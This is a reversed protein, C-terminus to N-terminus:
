GQLIKFVIENGEISNGAEDTIKARAYYEGASWDPLSASSEWKVRTNGDSEIHTTSLWTQATLWTLGTWYKSDSQKKIYFKTSDANLGSGFSNKDQAYGSFKGNDFKSGASQYYGCESCPATTTRYTGGTLDESIDPLTKDVKIIFTKTTEVNELNDKSMYRLHGVEETIVIDTPFVPKTVLRLPESYVTSPSCDKALCYKPPQTTLCGSGGTNDQCSLALQVDNNTWTDSVYPINYPYVLKIANPVTNPPTDDFKYTRGKGTATLGANDAARFNLTIDKQPNLNDKKCYSETNTSATSSKYLTCSSTSRIWYGKGFVLLTNPTLSIPVKNNNVDTSDIELNELICTGLIESIKINSPVGIMYFRNAGLNVPQLEYSTGKIELTASEKMKIQYGKGPELVSLDSPIGAGYIFWEGNDYYWVSDLKDKVSSFISEIKADDPILPLSIFNNGSDLPIKNVTVYVANTSWTVGNDVTYECKTVSSVVDSATARIGVSGKYWYNNGSQYTTGLYVEAQSVSPPEFDMGIPIHITKENGTLDICSIYRKNNIGSLSGFSCTATTGSVICEKEMSSYSLGESSWRCAMGSVVFIKADTKKDDSNDWYPEDVDGAVSLLVPPITNVTFSIKFDDTNTNESNDSCKIYYNYLGGPLGTLQRSHSETNTTSFEETMSEYITEPTTSFKCTADENTTLSLAPNDIVVTGKPNGNSRVPPTRDVKFEVPSSSGPNGNTDKAAGCIWIHSTVTYPVGLTYSQYDGPCNKPDSTYTQIKYSNLNCEFNDTCGVNAIQNESVWDTPAGTVSVSPPIDDFFATTTEDNNSMDSERLSLHISAKVTVKDKKNAYSCTITKSDTPKLEEISDSCAKGDDVTIEIPIYKGIVNISNSKVIASIKVSRDKAMIASLDEIAVDYSVDMTKKLENNAISTEKSIKDSNISFTLEGTKKFELSQTVEQSKFPPLIGPSSVGDSKIDGGMEVEYSAKKEDTIDQNGVNKFVITLKADIYDTTHDHELDVRSDTVSLDYIPPKYLTKSVKVSTKGEILYRYETKIDMALTQITSIGGIVKNCLIRGNKGEILRVEYIKNKNQANEGSPNINCSTDPPLGVFIKNLGKGSGIAKINNYLTTADQEGGGGVFTIGGGVNKFEIEIPLTSFGSIVAQDSKVSVEIPGKTTKSVIVGTDIMGQESEPLSQLYNFDVAKILITSITSYDYVLNVTPEYTQDRSQIPSLLRWTAISQDGKFGSEIDEGQLSAPDLPKLFEMFPIKDNPEWSEPRWQKYQDEEPLATDTLFILGGLVAKIDKAEREGTNKVILTFEVPSDSAVTSVQPTFKEIVVGGKAVSVQEACGAVFVILVIPLLLYFKELKM